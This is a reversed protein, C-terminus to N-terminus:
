EESEVMERARVVDPVDPNLPFWDCLEAVRALATVQAGTVSRGTSRAMERLSLATGCM